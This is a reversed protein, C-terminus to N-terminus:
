TKSSESSDKEHTKDENNMDSIHKTEISQDFQSQKLGQIEIQHEEDLGYKVEKRQENFISEM